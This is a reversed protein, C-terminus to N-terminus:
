GGVDLYEFVNIAYTIAARYSAEHITDKYIDSAKSHTRVLQRQNKKARVSPAKWYCTSKVHTGDHNFCRPLGTRHQSDMRRQYRRIKARIQKAPKTNEVVHGDSGTIIRLIGVDHGCVRNQM